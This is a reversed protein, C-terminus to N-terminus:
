VLIIPHTHNLLSLSLSLSLSLLLVKEMLERQTMTIDRIRDLVNPADPDLAYEVAPVKRGALLEVVFLLLLSVIKKTVVSQILNLCPVPVICVLTRHNLGLCSCCRV